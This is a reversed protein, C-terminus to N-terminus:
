EQGKGNKDAVYGEIIIVIAPYIAYILAGKALAKASEYGLDKFGIMFVATACYALFIWFFYNTIPAEKRFTNEKAEGAFVICALSCAIIGCLRMYEGGFIFYPINLVIALSVLLVAYVGFGRSM